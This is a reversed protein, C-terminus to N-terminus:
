LYSECIDEGILFHHLGSLQIEQVPDDILVEIGERRFIECDLYQRSMPGAIYTTAELEQCIKLILESKRYGHVEEMGISEVMAPLCQGALFEMSLRAIDGVHEYERVIELFRCAYNVRDIRKYASRIVSKHLDVWDNGDVKVNHIPDGFRVKVPITIWKHGGNM